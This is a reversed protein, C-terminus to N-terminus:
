PKAQMHAWVQPLFQKIIAKYKEPNWATSPVFVAMSDDAASIQVGKAGTSDLGKAVDLGAEKLLETFNAIDEGMTTGGGIVDAEHDKFSGAVNKWPIGTPSVDLWDDVSAAPELGKALADIEADLAADGTSTLPKSLAAMTKEPTANGIKVGQQVLLKIVNDQVWSPAKGIAQLLTEPAIKGGWHAIIAQAVDGEAAEVDWDKGLVKDLVGAPTSPEGILDPIPAAKAKMIKPLLTDFQELAATASAGHSAWSAAMDTKGEATFFAAMQKGYDAEDQLYKVMDAPTAKGKATTLFEQIFEPNIGASHSTGVPTPPLAAKAQASAAKWDGFTTKTPKPAAALEGWSQWPKPVKAFAAQVKAFADQHAKTDDAVDDPHLNSYDFLAQQLDNDNAKGAFKQLEVMHHDPIWDGDPVWVPPKKPGDVAVAKPATSFVDDLGALHKNTEPLPKWGNQKMVQLTAALANSYEEKLAASTITPLTEALYKLHDQADAETSLANTMDELLAPEVDTHFYDAANPLNSQGKGPWATAKQAGKQPWKSTGALGTLYPAPTKPLNRMDQPLQLAQGIPQRRALGYEGQFRKMADPTLTGPDFREVPLNDLTRRLRAADSGGGMVIAGAWNEENLPTLGQPQLEAYEAPVQSFKKRYKAATGGIETMVDSGYANMLGQLVQEREARSGFILPRTISSFRAEDASTAMPIGVGKAAERMDKRYANYLLEVGAIVQSKPGEILTAAGAPSAEYQAFSRFHPSNALAAKHGATNSWTMQISQPDRKPIQKGEGGILRLNALGKDFALNEGTKGGGWQNLAYSGHRPLYADRNYLVSASTAPDFAGIKPILFVTGELNQDKFRNVKNLNIGISPSYLMNPGLDRRATELGSIDTAHSPILSEWGGLRIAGQQSRFRGSAKVQDDLLFAATKGLGKLGLTATPAALGVTDLVDGYQKAYSSERKDVVPHGARANAITRSAGALGTLEAVPTLSTGRPLEVGSTPDVIPESLGSTLAQILREYWSPEIAQMSANNPGSGPYPGAM